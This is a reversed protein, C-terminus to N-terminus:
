EMAAPPEIEMAANNMAPTNGPRSSPSVSAPRNGTRRSSACNGPRGLRDRQALGQADAAIRHPAQRGHDDDQAADQRAHEGGGLRSRDRHQPRKEDRHEDVAVVLPAIQGLQHVARDLRHGDHHDQDAKRGAEAVDHRQHLDRQLDGVANVLKLSL